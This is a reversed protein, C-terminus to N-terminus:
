ACTGPQQLSEDVTIAGDVTADAVIRDGVVAIAELTVGAPLYEAVCITWDQLVASAILGFQDRVQDATLEVGAVEIGAPSLAIAGEDAAPTLRVAVPIELGFVDFDTDFRVDPEALTIEADPFDELGALLQAVQDGDLTLRADIAGAPADGRVPVDRATVVVDGSLPGLAVDDGSITLEELTGQILQPLVLGSVGVDIAQDAPVDLADAVQARVTRTVAERAIWEGAIAAAVALVVIAGVGVLWPWARRRRPEPRGTPSPPDPLPRTPQTDGAPM